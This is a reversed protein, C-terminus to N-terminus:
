VTPEGRHCCLTAEQVALDRLHVSVHSAGHRLDPIAISQTVQRHDKERRLLIAQHVTLGVYTSLGM